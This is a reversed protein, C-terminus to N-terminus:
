HCKPESCALSDHGVMRTYEKDKYRRSGQDSGQRKPIYGGVSLIDTRVQLDALSRPGLRHKSLGISGQKSQHPNSSRRGDADKAYRPTHATIQM